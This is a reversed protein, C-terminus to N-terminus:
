RCCSGAPDIIVEFLTWIEGPAGIIISQGSDFDFPAVTAPPALPNGNIVHMGVKDSVLSLLAITQGQANSQNDLHAFSTQGYRSKLGVQWDVDVFANIAVNPHNMLTYDGLGAFQARGTVDFNTHAFVSQAVGPCDIWFNGDFTAAGGGVAVQRINNGLRCEIPTYDLQDPGTRSVVCGTTVDVAPAHNFNLVLVWANAIAPNPEIANGRDSLCAVPPTMGQASTAYVPHPPMTTSLVLTLALWGSFMVLRVYKKVM